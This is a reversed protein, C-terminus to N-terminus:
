SDMLDATEVRNRGQNKAKYLADDARKLLEDPQGIEAELAAVGISLTFNLPQGETFLTMAQCRERLEEARKVASALDAGPLLVVFEEGGFRCAIDTGRFMDELLDALLKLAEDGVAHGHVDNLKKFHDIDVLLVSLPSSQEVAEEFAEEFSLDMQRRNYLGTLADRLSQEQLSDRLKINMLALALQEALNAAGEQNEELWSAASQFDLCPEISLVGVLDGRALLPICLVPATHDRLHDCQLATDNSEYFHLKARRVAWCSDHEFYEQYDGTGWGSAMKFGDEDSLFLAGSSGSFIKQCSIRVVDAAEAENQCSQLLEGVLKLQRADEIRAKVLKEVQLHLQQTQQKELHMMQQLQEALQNFVTGLITFEDRGKTNARQKLDGSAFARAVQTIQNLSNATYFATFSAFVFALALSFFMSAMLFSRADDAAKSSQEQRQKLRSYELTILQDVLAKLTDIRQKGEDAFTVQKSSENSRYSEIQAKAVLRQWDAYGINVEALINRHQDTLEASNIMKQQLTRVASVSQYYPELFGDDGTLLYGRVATQSDVIFQLLQNLDAIISYSEAVQQNAVSTQQSSQYVPLFALVLLLTPLFTTFFVRFILRSQFWQM